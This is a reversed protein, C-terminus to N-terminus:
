IKWLYKELYKSTCCYVCDDVYSLVIMKKGDPAYKYYISMHCQSQIFGSEILWETLDDAFLNWFNTMVHMYKMLRLSRGFYISHEPFYGAYRSDLNVCVRSKVKEQLLSGIFYLQHVRPNHKVDDVM